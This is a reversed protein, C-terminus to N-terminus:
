NEKPKTFNTIYTVFAHDSRDDDRLSCDTLTILILFKIEQKKQELIM